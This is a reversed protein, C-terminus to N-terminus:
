SSVFVVLILWNKTRAIDRFIERLDIDDNDNQHELEEVDSM